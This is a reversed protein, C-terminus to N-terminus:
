EPYGKGKKYTHMPVFLVYVVVEAVVLPSQFDPGFFGHCSSVHCCEVNKEERLDPLKRWM